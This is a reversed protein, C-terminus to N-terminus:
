SVVAEHEVGVVAVVKGTGGVDELLEARVADRGHEEDARGRGRMEGRKRVHLGYADGAFVHLTPVQAKWGFRGIELQGTEPNLVVNPVGACPWKSTVSFSEYNWKNLKLRIIINLLPFFTM